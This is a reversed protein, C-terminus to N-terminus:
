LDPGSFSWSLQFSYERGTRYEREPIRSATQEPDYVIARKSDTLNKASFKVALGKWLEQSVILDLQEFSDIYRDLTFGTILGAQTIANAGGAADLVDSIAFFALTAKTGWDPHDFSLDVNAIWEPQGYLRRKTDLGQYPAPGPPNGPGQPDGDTDNFFRAQARAIEAASRDVEADIYTFNGGITLHHLFGLLPLDLGLFDLSLFGLHKRAEIEIGQLDAESPNNFFTRFLATASEGFVGPDRLIIQEIPDQIRKDFLSVAVLDGEEGWVLEARVDFSEVDSLQLKPNGVSLDDSGPEVSVYYGIERFSPRAVTQSWAGRLTLWDFPRYALGLAPLARNEDIEGNAAAQIEARDILDVCQGSGAQGPPIVQGAQDRCPGAPLDLGLIQDNFPPTRTLRERVINDIRDFFLYKSPFILPTQDLGSFGDTFPDNKSEIFINELRVGGLLDLKEWLTTKAGVSLARIERTAESTTPTLGSITGDPDRSLPSATSFITRGLEKATDGFIAFQALSGICKSAATCQSASGVGIADGSLFSSGVDRTAHEYWLGSRVEALLWRFPEVEYDGDLRGFYHEEDIHNSSAFLRNNVLYKGPGLAGVTIPFSTPLGGPVQSIPTVGEPCGLAPTGTLGCPEFFFRMGLAEDEQTTTAYNAAWALHLDDVLGIRHDGNVQYVWLDRRIDFSKSDLFSAIFPAGKTPTEDLTQRVSGAIWASQSANRGADFPARQGDWNSFDLQGGQELEEAIRSYDFGPLYGNEGLEVEDEDKRTFFVSGDLRHSGERDLDLGIGGYLTLQEAYRSTTLDFRGSTLSLEGFALDGAPFHSSAGFNRPDRGERFGEATEYDAGWNAVAKYRLERGAFGSRGALAGGFESELVDTGDQEIGVPSGSDFELFRDWARQNVGTKASVSLELQDPYAHTVIDISGGSSNSPLEALFTKSVALTDVVEAPFLDLQISQRDPDPSPVPAGNYLTSSYRDELGRIIAFQGEVINVGAVRKLADAVDSAAYKSLDEASMVNLMQDADIRLELATMIEGVTSAEVVYADLELVDDSAEAPVPPLPFDARNVEDAVVALDTMTAARYGSKVFTISYAGPPVSPFEYAGDADTVQVEQPPESGDAPPPWMLIVTVGQVPLASVGDLVQGRVAGEGERHGPPLSEDEQVSATGLDRLVDEVGEQAAAAAALLLCALLPALRRRVM